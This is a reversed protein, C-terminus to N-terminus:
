KGAALNAKVAKLVASEQVKPTEVEDASAGIEEFMASKEVKAQISSLADVISAFDEESEVLGVAKFLVEAIAKDKVAAELKDFKSKRVAEKKEAQFLEIQELAKALAVKNEDLAKQIEEFQSKAVTEIEQTMQKEKKVNSGSVPEKNKKIAQKMIPELTEQSKLVALHEDESLAILSKAINESENLTDLLTFAQVKEQIYDEYTKSEEEDPEEVYGMLRALVEADSGYLGFFTRLFDPLEMTVQVAQAKTIFEESRNTGVSKFLVTTSGNAAGGVAPGVLAVAADPGSFDFNKLKRTAKKKPEQM